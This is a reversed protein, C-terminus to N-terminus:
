VAILQAAARRFLYVLRGNWREMKKKEDIM